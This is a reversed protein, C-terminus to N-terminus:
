DQQILFDSLPEWKYGAFRGRNIYIMNDKVDEVTYEQKTMRSIVVDGKTVSVKEEQVAPTDTTSNNNEKGVEPSVLKLPMTEQIAKLRLSINAIVNLVAWSALASLMIGIGAGLGIAHDEVGFMFILAAFIGGILLIIAVTKLISEPNESINPVKVEVENQEM